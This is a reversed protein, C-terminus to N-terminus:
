ARKMNADLRQKEARYLEEALGFEPVRIFKRRVTVPIWHGRHFQQVTVPFTSATANTFEEYLYPRLADFFDSPNVETVAEAGPLREAVPQWQAKFWAVYDDYLAKRSVWEPWQARGLYDVAERVPKRFFIDKNNLRASWYLRPTNAM